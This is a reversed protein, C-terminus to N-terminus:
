ARISAMPTRENEDTENEEGDSAADGDFYPERTIPDKRDFVVRGGRAIRPRCHQRHTGLPLVFSRLAAPAPALAFLMAIDPIEPPPTYPAVPEIPLPARPPGMRDIALQIQAPTSGFPSSYGISAMPMGDAGLMGGGYGSFQGSGGYGPGPGPGARPPPADERRRKKSGPARANSGPAMGQPERPPAFREGGFGYTGDARM